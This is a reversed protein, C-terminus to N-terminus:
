RWALLRALLEKRSSVELRAYLQRRHYVVTNLSLGTQGAIQQETRERALLYAVEAQRAPLGLGRLAELLRVERSVEWTIHVGLAQQGEEAPTLVCARLTFRGRATRVQLEPPDAVPLGQRIWQLRQVVLGVAEPLEARRRWRHGFALAMWEQARATMWLLRGEPSAVVMETGIAEMDEATAGAGPALALALFPELRALADLEEADFPSRRTSRYLKLAGVPTGNQLRPMLSVCDLMGAPRLVLNFFDSREFTSWSTKILQLTPVPGHEHAAAEEYGRTLRLVERQMQHDFFLPMVNEAEATEMYTAIGGGAEPHMYGGSDFALVDRLERLIAPALQHGTADLGAFQQIRAAARRQRAQHPGSSKGSEPM